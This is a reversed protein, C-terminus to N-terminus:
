TCTVRRPSRILDVNKRQRYQWRWSGRHLYTRRRPKHSWFGLGSVQFTSVLLSLILALHLCLDIISEAQSPSVLERPLAQGPGQDDHSIRCAKSRRVHPLNMSRASAWLQSDKSVGEDATGPISDDLPFQCWNLPKRLFHASPNWRPLQGDSVSGCIILQALAFFIPL